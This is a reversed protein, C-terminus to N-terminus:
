GLVINWIKSRVVSFYEKTSKTMKVIGHVNTENINSDNGDVSVSSSPLQNAM